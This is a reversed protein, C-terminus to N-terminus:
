DNGQTHEAVYKAWREAAAGRLSISANTAALLHGAEAAKV